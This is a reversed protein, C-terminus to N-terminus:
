KKLVKSRGSEESKRYGLYADFNGGFEARLEASKDFEAKARDEIPADKDAGSGLPADGAPDLAGPADARFNELHKKQDSKVGQLVKVAAEPGTTKGDYKLEAILAEQGVIAQDEVSQIRQRENEAGETRATEIQTQLDETTVMGTRAEAVIAAVLDPHDAKLQTVDMAKEGTTAPEAKAQARPQYTSENPSKISLDRVEDILGLAVAESAIRVSGKLEDIVEATIRGNRGSVVRDRFVSYIADLEEQVIKQGASTSIDPIKESAEHNTIVVKKVGMKELMGSIDYTSVVVGISGTFAVPSSAIIQDCASGIWMGGSAVMGMNVMTTKLGCTAIAQYVDDVMSVTGGPTNAHFFLGGDEQIVDEKAQDIAELIDTYAVGGFGYFIDYLDPGNPSMPGNISIHADKGDFRYIEKTAAIKGEFHQRLFDDLKGANAPNTYHEVKSVYDSAFSESLLLFKDTLM